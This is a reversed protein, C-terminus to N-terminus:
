LLVSLAQVLKPVITSCRVQNSENQLRDVPAVPQPDFAIERPRLDPSRIGADDDRATAIAFETGDRCLARCALQAAQRTPAVDGHGVLIAAVSAAFAPFLEAAGLDVIQQIEDRHSGYVEDAM